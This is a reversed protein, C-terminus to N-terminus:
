RRATIVSPNEHNPRLSNRYQDYNEIVWLVVQNFDENHYIPAGAPRSGASWEDGHKYIYVKNYATKGLYIVQKEEDGHHWVLLGTAQFMVAEKGYKFENRGHGPGSSRGARAADTALFAFNFGPSSKRSKDSFNTSLGLREKYNVDVGYKFGGHYVNDAEDSFHVLWENRVVRQFDMFVWPPADSEGDTGISARAWQAFERYADPFKKRYSKLHNGRSTM